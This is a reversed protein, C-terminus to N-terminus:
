NKGKQLIFFFIERAIPGWPGGQPQLGRSFNGPTGGQSRGQIATHRESGSSNKKKYYNKFNRMKAKNNKLLDLKSCNSAIFSVMCRCRFYLVLNTLPRYKIKPHVYIIKSVVM